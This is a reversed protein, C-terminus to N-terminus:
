FDSASTNGGCTSHRHGVAWAMSHVSFPYRASDQMASQCLIQAIQTPPALIFPSASVNVIRLSMRPKTSLPRWYRVTRRPLTLGLNLSMKMLQFALSVYLPRFTQRVAVAFRVDQTM